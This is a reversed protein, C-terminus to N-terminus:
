KRPELQGRVDLREPFRWQAGRRNFVCGVLLSRSAGVGDLVFGPREPAEDRQLEMGPEAVSRRVRAAERRGRRRGPLLGSGQLHVYRLAQRRVLIAGGLLEGGRVQASPVADVRECVALERLLGRRVSAYFEDLEVEGGYALGVCECEEHQVDDVGGSCM